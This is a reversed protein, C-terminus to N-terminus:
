ARSKFSCFSFAPAGISSRLRPMPSAPLSADVSVGSKERRGLLTCSVNFRAILPMSSPKFRIRSTPSKPRLKLGSAPVAASSGELNPDTRSPNFDEVDSAKPRRAFAVEGWLKLAAASPMTFAKLLAFASRCVAKDFIGKAFAKPKAPVMPSIASNAAATGVANLWNEFPSM